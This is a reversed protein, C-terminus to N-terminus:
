RSATTQARELYSLVQKLDVQWDKRTMRPRFGLQHNIKLMPANTTANGTQVRKVEPHKSLVAELLAAKEREFDEQTFVAVKGNPLIALLQNDM